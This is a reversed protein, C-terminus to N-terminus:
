DALDSRREMEDQSIIYKTGALSRIGTLYDERNQLAAEIVQLAVFEPSVHLEAALAQLSAETGPQLELQIM